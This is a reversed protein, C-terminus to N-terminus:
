WARLEGDGGRHCDIAEEGAKIMNKLTAKRDGLSGWAQLYLSIVPDEGRPAAILQAIRDQDLVPKTM